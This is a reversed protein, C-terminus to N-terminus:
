IEYGEDLPTPLNPNSADWNFNFYSNGTDTGLGIDHEYITSFIGNGLEIDSYGISIVDNSPTDSGAIPKAYIKLNAAIIEGSISSFDLTSVARAVNDGEITDLELIPIPAGAAIAADLAQQARDSVTTLEVGDSTDFFDRQGVSIIYQASQLASCILLNLLLCMLKMGVALSINVKRDVLIINLERVALFQLLFFLM